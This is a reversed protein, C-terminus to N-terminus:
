TGTASSASPMPSRGSSPWCTAAHGIAPRAVGKLLGAAGLILSGTCVSTQYRASRALRRVAAM